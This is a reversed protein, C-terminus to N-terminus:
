AEWRRYKFTCVTVCFCSIAAVMMMMMMMMLKKKKKKKKKKLDLIAKM